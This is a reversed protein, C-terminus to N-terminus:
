HKSCVVSDIIWHKQILEFSENKFVIGTVFLDTRIFLNFSHPSMFVTMQKTQIFWNKQVHSNVLIYIQLGQAVFEHGFVSSMHTCILVTMEYVEFSNCCLHFYLKYTCSNHKWRQQWLKSTGKERRFFPHWYKQGYSSHVLWQHKIILKQSSTQM